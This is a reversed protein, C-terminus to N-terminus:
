TFWDDCLKAPLILKLASAIEKKIHVVDAPNKDILVLDAHARDDEVGFGEGKSTEVVDCNSFKWVRIESVKSTAVGVFEIKTSPNLSSSKEARNKALAEGNSVIQEITGARSRIRGSLEAKYQGIGADPLDFRAVASHHLKYVGNGEEPQRINDRSTIPRFWCDDDAPKNRNTRKEIPVIKEPSGLSEDSNDGVGDVM